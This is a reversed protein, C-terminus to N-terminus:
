IFKNLTKSSKRKAVGDNYMKKWRIAFSYSGKNMKSEKLKVYDSYESQLKEFIEKEMEVTRGSLQCGGEQYRLPKITYRGSLRNKYGRSLYQFIFHFDEVYERTLDIDDIFTSLTNGNISSMSKVFFPFTGSLRCGCHIYGDSLWEDFKNFMDDFHKDTFLETSKINKEKYYRDRYFFTVDDDIMAFNIKGADYMIKRRTNAIGINDDTVLYNCDIKHLPRESETVVLTVIDKYKQPLNNYTIQNDVRGLTPIYIKEIM